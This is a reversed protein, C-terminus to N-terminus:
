WIIINTFGGFKAASIQDSLSASNELVVFAEQVSSEAATLEQAAYECAELVFVYPLEKILSFENNGIKVTKAQRSLRLDVALNKAPLSLMNGGYKGDSVSKSNYASIDCM